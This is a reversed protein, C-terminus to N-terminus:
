YTQPAFIYGEGHVTIIYKPDRPDDNLKRRLRSVLVDISRDSSQYTNSTSSPLLRNRSIIRGPKQILNSLIIFEASTLRSSNGSADTLTRANLDFMWDDFRVVPSMDVSEGSKQLRRLVTKVRALLERPLFPKILYDDAGIELGLIRDYDDKKNSIIIIGIDSRSRLDRTITFGDKGPLMVDILVLDVPKSALIRELAEASEAESILSFETELSGRILSRIIPEDDVIVIHTQALNADLLPM